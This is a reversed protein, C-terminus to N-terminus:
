KSPLATYRALVFLVESLRNFYALLFPNIARTEQLTVLRREAKRVTTRALHLHAAVKGGGPLIFNKLPPLEEEWECILHELTQIDPTSILPKAETKILDAGASFLTNQFQELLADIRKDDNFCRVIGLISSCEDIMGNAEILPDNKLVRTGDQLGTEGQDGRKRSIPCM